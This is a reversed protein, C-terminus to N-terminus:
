HKNNKYMKNCAHTIHAVNKHIYVNYVMQFIKLLMLSERLQFEKIFIFRSLSDYVPMIYKRQRNGATPILLLLLQYCQRILHICCNELYWVDLVSAELVGNCALM